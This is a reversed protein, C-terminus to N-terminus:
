KMRTELADPIKILHGEIASESVEVGMKVTMDHILEATKSHKKFDLKAEKCVTAIITLLTRRERNGLPKDLSSEENETLSEEFARLAATRIVIFSEAPLGNANRFYVDGLFDDGTKGQIEVRDQLYFYVPSTDTPSSVITCTTKFRSLFDHLLIEPLGMLRRYQIECSGAESGFLPLDYVGSLLEVREDVDYAESGFVFRIQKDSHEEVRVLPTKHQMGRAKNLSLRYAHTIKMLNVSLTFRGDLGLRLVDSELVTEGLVITLHAATEALTLWERLKFLKSM